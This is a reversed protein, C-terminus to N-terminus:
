ALTDIITGLRGPAAKVEPARLGDMVFRVDAATVAEVRRPAVRSRMVSVPAIADFPTRLPSVNFFGAVGRPDIVNM